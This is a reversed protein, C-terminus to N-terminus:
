RRAAEGGAVESITSTSTDSFHGTRSRKKIRPRGRLWGPVRRQCGSLGGGVASNGACRGLDGYFEWNARDLREGYPPNSV